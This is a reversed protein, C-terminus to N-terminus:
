GNLTSELSVETNLLKSVPCNEKAHKVLEEFKEQSVGPVKANLVLHSRTISGDELTITAETELSVPSFGEKSLNASLQMTFCGAHAAGILEEPNTGKENEFRTNFSYPTDHLVESQTSLNGKGEKITGNWVATAKRKM